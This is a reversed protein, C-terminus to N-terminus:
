VHEQLVARVVRVAQRAMDVNHVRLIAAGKYVSLATIVATAVDRDKPAVGDLLHGLFAKRSPGVLLPYGLSTLEELRNILMLNHDFTKGFGVGPDLIIRDRLVGAREARDCADMLFEKIEGLLDRYVPNKQMDRPVGQMHMLVLPVGAQAAVELIQPDLRGAAIDNVIAAGADLAAEAVGAKYTDISIPVDVQSALAHIVPTVRAIEEAESVPAAGPRTSEGGIDLIDAGAEVLRLAQDVASQVSYFDGGDSFSDPTVNVIGMIHPRAALDLRWRGWQM